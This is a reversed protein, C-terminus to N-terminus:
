LTGVALLRINVARNRFHDGLGLDTQFLERGPDRRRQHEAVVCRGTGIRCSPSLPLPMDSCCNFSRPTFKM